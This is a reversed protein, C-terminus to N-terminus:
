FISKFLSFREKKERGGGGRAAWGGGKKGEHALEAAWGGGGGAKPGCARGLGGGREGRAHHAGSEGQPGWGDAAGEGFGEREKGGSSGDGGGLEGDGPFWRGGAGECGGGV